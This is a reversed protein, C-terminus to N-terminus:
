TPGRLTDLRQCYKRERCRGPLLTRDDALLARVFARRTTAAIEAVSQEFVNGLVAERFFDNCCVIWDGNEVVNVSHVVYDPWPCDLREDPVPFRDGDRRYEGRLQFSSWVDEVVDGPGLISSWGALVTAPEGEAVESAPGATTLPERGLTREVAARYRRASTTQVTVSCASGLADCLRIFGILNDRVRWLGIGKAARHAADTTGDISVVLQTVLEEELLTTAVSETLLVANTYLTRKPTPYATAFRRLLTRLDPHLLPEALGGWEVSELRGYRDLVDTSTLQELLRDLEALSMAREPRRVRPTACYVCSANCRSTVTLDLSRLPLYDLDELVGRDVLDDLFANVDALLISRAVDYIAGLEDVLAEPLTSDPREALLRVVDTGVGSFELDRWARHLVYDRGRYRV